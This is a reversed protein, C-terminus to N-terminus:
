THRGTKSTNRLWTRWQGRTKLDHLYRTSQWCRVGNLERATLHAFADVCRKSLTTSLLVLNIASLRTRTLFASRSNGSTKRVCPLQLDTPPACALTKLDRVQIRKYKMHEDAKNKDLGMKEILHYGRRRRKTPPRPILPPGSVQCTGGSTVAAHTVSTQGTSNSSSSIGGDLATEQLLATAWQRMPYRRQRTAPVILRVMRLSRAARQHCLYSLRKFLEM